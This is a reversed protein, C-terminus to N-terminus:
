TEDILWLWVLAKIPPSVGGSLHLQGLHNAMFDLNGFCIIQGPYFSYIPIPGDTDIFELSGFRIRVGPAAGLAHGVYTYHAM